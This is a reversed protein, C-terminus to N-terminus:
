KKAFAAPYKKLYEKLDETPVITLDVPILEKGDQIQFKPRVITYVDKGITVEIAAKPKEAAISTPAVKTSELAEVKSTLSQLAESQAEIVDQLEKIITAQDAMKKKHGM